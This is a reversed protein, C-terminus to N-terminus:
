HGFRFHPGHREIKKVEKTTDIKLYQAYDEALHQVLLENPLIESAEPNALVEEGEM